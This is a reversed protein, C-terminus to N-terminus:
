SSTRRRVSFLDHWQPGVNLGPPDVTVSIMLFMGRGPAGLHRHHEGASAKRNFAVMALEITIPRIRGPEKLIEKGNLTM